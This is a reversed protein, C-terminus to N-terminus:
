PAITATLVDQDICGFLPDITDCANRNDTWFVHVVGPTAALGLRDGIWRVFSFGGGDGHEVLNPDFSASTVRVSASFSSGGDTSEAYFVDLGTITGNPLQGLRSDYWVVSIIGGSLAFYPLFPEGVTDDNVRIPSTWSVGGDTSKSLLVDANGTRFDDWVLFVGDANAAVVGVELECM